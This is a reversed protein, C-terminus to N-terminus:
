ETQTEKIYHLTNTMCNSYAIFYRYGKRKAIEAHDDCQESISSVLEENSMPTNRSACGMMSIATFLTLLYLSKRM